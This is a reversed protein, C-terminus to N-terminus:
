LRWDGDHHAYARRGDPLPLDSCLRVDAYREDPDALRLLVAPDHDVVRV